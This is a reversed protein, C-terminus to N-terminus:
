FQQYPRYQEVLLIQSTMIILVLDNLGPFSFGTLRLESKMLRILDKVVASRHQGAM